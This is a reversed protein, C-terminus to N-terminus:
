VIGLSTCRSVTKCIKIILCKGQFVFTAISAFGYFGLHSTDADDTSEYTTSTVLSFM